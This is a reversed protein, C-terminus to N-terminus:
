RVSVAIVRNLLRDRSVHGVLEVEVCNAGADVDSVQRNSRDRGVRTM